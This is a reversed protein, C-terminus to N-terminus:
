DMAAKLQEIFVRRKEGDGKIDSKIKKWTVPCNKYAVGVLQHVAQDIQKRNARTIAIGAEDLIDKMHRLYCSM